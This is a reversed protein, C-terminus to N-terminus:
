ENYRDAYCVFYSVCRVRLGHTCITTVDRWHNILVVIRFLSSDRNMGNLIGPRVNVIKKLQNKKYEPLKKLM